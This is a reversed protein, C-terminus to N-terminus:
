YEESDEEYDEDSDYEDSSYDDDFDNWGLQSRSASHIARDEDRRNVLRDIVEATPTDENMGMRELRSVSVSWVDSQIPDVKTAELNLGKADDCWASGRPALESKIVNGYEDKKIKWTIRKLYYSLKGPGVEDRLWRRGEWTSGGTWRVVEGGGQAAVAALVSGDQRVFEWGQVAQECIEDVQAKKRELSEFEVNIVRVSDPFRCNAVWHGGVRLSEDTEWYWFDTRRITVTIELPQFFNLNLISQLEVGYELNCLQAFVRVKRVRTDAEPTEALKNLIHQVGTMTESKAPRRPNATLYFILESTLFPLHWAEAYIAKCTRLLAVSASRPGPLEPRTYCTTTPYPNSPDPTPTLAEEYIQSRLEAPLRFLPCTPQPSIDATFSIRNVKSM